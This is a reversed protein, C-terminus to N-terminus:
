HNLLHIVDWWYRNPLIFWYFYITRYYKQFSHFRFVLNSHKARHCFALGLMSVDFSSSSIIDTATSAPIQRPRTWWGSVLNLKLEWGNEIDNWLQRTTLQFSMMRHIHIRAAIISHFRIAWWQWQRLHRFPLTTGGRGSIWEGRIFRSDDITM